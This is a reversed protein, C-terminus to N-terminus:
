YNKNQIEFNIMKVLIEEISHKLKWQPYDNKFKNLNSIYWKHDGIRNAELITSKNWKLDAINNIKEIAEIISISNERGGGANYVEGKKPNLHFNWFMEVLDSSYINDRVQKGKYGFINYTKNKIICKVLYSLFGHMESGKHNQGTLCGGRFAVTNLNFYKGYEQVMIDASVKSAGFVSHKCNDISMSEDISSPTNNEFFDFRKELETLNLLNPRDGYVKNSSTFIFSAKPCYKRYLELLNITGVANISFDTIPEKAAWDHSPQAATHVIISIDANFKNFINELKSLDRIDVSFSEFNEFEQKLNKEIQLTSCHEGFFYSRMDNDIGIVKFGKKSFFDVCSSGILGSSGTILAIM